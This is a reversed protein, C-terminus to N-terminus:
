DGDKIRFMKVIAFARLSPPPLPEQLMIKMGELTDDYVQGLGLEQIKAEAKKIEDSDNMYDPPTDVRQGTLKYTIYRCYDQDIEKFRQKWDSTHM